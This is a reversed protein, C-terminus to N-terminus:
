GNIAPFAFFVLGHGPAHEVPPLKDVMDVGEWCKDDDGDHDDHGFLGQPGNDSGVVAVSHCCKAGIGRDHIRGM